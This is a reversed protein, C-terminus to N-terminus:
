NPMRFDLADESDFLKDVEHIWPRHLMLKESHYAAALAHPQSNFYGETVGTDANIVAYYYLKGDEPNTVGNIETQVVYM